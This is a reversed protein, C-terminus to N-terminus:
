QSFFLWIKPPFSEAGSFSLFVIIFILLKWIYKNKLPINSAADEEEQEDCEPKCLEVAPLWLVCSECKIFTL